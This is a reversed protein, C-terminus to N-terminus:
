LVNSEHLHIEIRLGGNHEPAAYLVTILSIGTDLLIGSGTTYNQLKQL